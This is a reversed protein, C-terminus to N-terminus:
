ARPRPRDQKLDRGAVQLCDALPGPPMTPLVTIPDVPFVDPVMCEISCPRCVLWALGAVPEVETVVQEGCLGVSERFLSAPEALQPLDPVFGRWNRCVPRTKVEHIVGEIV